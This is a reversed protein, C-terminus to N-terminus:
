FQFYIFPQEGFYGFFIIWMILANYVSWRVWPPAADFRLFATTKAKLTYVTTLLAVAILVQLFTFPSIGLSEIFGSLNLPNFLSGFTAMLGESLHSVMYWADSLSTARFFIFSISVLSFTTAVRIARHLRPWANLHLLKVIRARIRRTALSVTMYIGHYLGWVVFTWNAGHWLGSLTFVIITAAYLWIPTVKFRALPLYVYDRFWSTLSIHWRKWFETISPASYPRNFNQMLRIGLVRASGIAIDSYGSFDCFLQISFAVTAVIFHAGAFQSPYDYVQSVVVALNDAIVIKKFLGWLMLRLGSAVRTFDFRQEIHLQPLIHQPREIPGAVLQPFFLVYLGYIGLRREAPYNGRYVEIIYSLSQFTHFSLGIPLILALHKIPYNWGIMEALATFNANFFNFYKFVFLIGINAVISILLFAKKRQLNSERAIALGMFYDILIVAFLILIYKPVFAM